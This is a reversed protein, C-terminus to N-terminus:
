QTRAHTTMAKTSTSQHPNESVVITNARFQRRENVNAQKSGWEKDRSEGSTEGNGRKEDGWEAM